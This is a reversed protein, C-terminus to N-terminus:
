TGFPQSLEFALCSSNTAKVDCPLLAGETCDQPIPSYLLLLIELPSSPDFAVLCVWATAWRIHIHLFVNPINRFHLITCLSITRNGEQIGRNYGTIYHTHTYIKKQKVLSKGHLERGQLQLSRVQIRMGFTKEHWLCGLNM